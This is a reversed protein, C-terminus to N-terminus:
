GAGEASEQMTGRMRASALSLWKYAQIADPGVGKGEQYADGAQAHRAPLRRGCRATNRNGASYMEALGFQAGVHDQEAAKRFWLAAQSYDQPIGRGTRYLEGLNLQAIPFGQEAARRYWNV